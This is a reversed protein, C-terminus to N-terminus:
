IFYKYNHKEIIKTIEKKAEEFTYYPETLYEYDSAWGRYSGFKELTGFDKGGVLITWIEAGELKGGTVTQEKKFEIKTM